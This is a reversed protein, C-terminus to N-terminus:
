ETLTVTMGRSLTLASGQHPQRESESHHVCGRSSASASERHSWPPPLVERPLTSHPPDLLASDWLWSTLCAEAQQPRPVHLAELGATTPQGVLKQSSVPHSVLVGPEPGARGDDLALPQVFSPTTPERIQSSFVWGGCGIHQLALGAPPTQYLDRVRTHKYLNPKSQPLKQNHLKKKIPYFKNM